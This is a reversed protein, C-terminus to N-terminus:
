WSNLEARTMLAICSQPTQGFGSLDTFGADQAAGFLADALESRRTGAHDAKLIAEAIKPTDSARHSLATFLPQVAAWGLAAAEDYKGLCSYSWAKEVDTNPSWTLRNLITAILYSFNPHTEVNILTTALVRISEQGLQALAATAEECLTPDKLAGMLSVVAVPDRLKGLAEAAKRREVVSHFGGERPSQLIELLPGLADADRSHGLAEIAELRKRPDASQLKRLHWWLM